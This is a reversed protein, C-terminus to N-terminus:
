FWGVVTTVIKGFLGALTSTMLGPNSIFACILAAGVFVLLAKMLKGGTRIWTVLALVSAIVGIGTLLGPSFPM